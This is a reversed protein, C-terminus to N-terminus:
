LATNRPARGATGERAIWNEHEREWRKQRWSYGSPHFRIPCRVNWDFADLGWRLVASARASTCRSIVGGVRCCWLAPAIERREIGSGKNQPQDGLQKEIEKRRPPPSCGSLWSISVVAFPSQSEPYSLLLSRWNREEPELPQSEAVSGNGVSEARSDNHVSAEVPQNRTGNRRSGQQWSLM